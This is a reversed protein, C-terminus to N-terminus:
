WPLEEVRRLYRYTEPEDRAVLLVSVKAVAAALRQKDISALEARHYVAHVPLECLLVNALYGVGVMGPSAILVTVLLVLIDGAEALGRGDLIDALMVVNERRASVDTRSFNLLVVLRELVLHRTQDGFQSLLHLLRSLKVLCDQGVQLLQSM